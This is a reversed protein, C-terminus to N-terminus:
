PSQHHGWGSARVLLGMGEKVLRSGGAQAQDTAGGVSVVDKARTDADM